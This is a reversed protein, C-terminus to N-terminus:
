PTALPGHVKCRAHVGTPIITVVLNRGCTPCHHPAEYPGACSGDCESQLRGCGRCYTPLVQTRLHEVLEDVSTVVLGSATVATDSELWTRNAAHLADRDDFRNLVVVVPRGQMADISLRVSNITGLGADAVLVVLDPELAGILDIGDGDHALPSRLGGALEVLGVDPARGPWSGSVEAALDALRIAPRGLADAAMPPAMPVTYWRHPPCVTEAAEGTGVGLEDADTTADAEDYSQAPKRAAVVLGSDTLREAVRRAVWTKGVETGTGAVVVLTRPRPTEAM